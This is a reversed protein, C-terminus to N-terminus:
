GNLKWVSLHMTNRYIIKVGGLNEEGMMDGAAYPFYAIKVVAYDNYCGYYWYGIRSLPIEFPNNKAFTNIWYDIKIAFDNKDDLAESTIPKPTFDESIIDENGERGGNHYYAISKVDELTLWGNEYAEYLMYFNGKPIWVTLGGHDTFHFQVGGIERYYNPVDTPYNWLTSDVTVICCKNYYGYFTRVFFDEATIEETSFHEDNRYKEAYTNKIAAKVPDFLEVPFTAKNDADHFHSIKKLDRQSLFGIEYAEELSYITGETEATVSKLQSGDDYEKLYDIKDSNDCGCFLCLGMLLAAGISLLKKLM